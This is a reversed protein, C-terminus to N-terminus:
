TAARYKNELVCAPLYKEELRQYEKLGVFDTFEEFSSIWQTQAALIGTPSAKLTTFFDSLARHAVLYPLL